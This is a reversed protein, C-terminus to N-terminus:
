AAGDDGGIPLHITPRTPFQLLMGTRRHAITTPPAPRMASSPVTAVNGCKSEQLQGFPGDSGLWGGLGFRQALVDGFRLVTDQYEEDNRIADAISTSFAKDIYENFCDFLELSITYGLKQMPTESLSPVAGDVPERKKFQLLNAPVGSPDAAPTVIELIM